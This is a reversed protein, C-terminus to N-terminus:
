ASQCWPVPMTINICKVTSSSTKQQQQWFWSLRLWTETDNSYISRSNRKQQYHHHFLKFFFACSSISHSHSLYISISLHFIFSYHKLYSFVCCFLLACLIFLSYRQQQYLVAIFFPIIKFTQTTCMITSLLIDTNDYGKNKLLNDFM